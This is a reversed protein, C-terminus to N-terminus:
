ERALILLDVLGGPRDSAVHELHVRYGDGAHARVRRVTHQFSELDADRDSAPALSAGGDTRKIVFNGGSEFLEDIFSL